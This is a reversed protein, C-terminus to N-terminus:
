KGPLADHRKGVMMIGSPTTPRKSTGQLTMPSMSPGAASSKAHLGLAPSSRSPAMGSSQVARVEGGRGGIVETLVKHVTSAPMGGSLSSSSAVGPLRQSPNPLSIAPLTRQPSAQPTPQASKTSGPLWTSSAAANGASQASSTGALATSSVATGAVSVGALAVPNLSTISRSRPRAAGSASSSSGPRDLGATQGVSHQSQQAVLQKKVLHQPQEKVAASMANSASAASAVAEPLAKPAKTEFDYGAGACLMKPAARSRPSSPGSPSSSPRQQSTSAEGTTAAARTRAAAVQAEMFEKKSAPAGPRGTRSDTQGAFVALLQEGKTSSMASPKAHAAEAKANRAPPAPSRTRAPSRGATPSGRGRAQSQM